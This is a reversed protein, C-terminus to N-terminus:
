GGAHLYDVLEQAAVDPDQEYAIIRYKLNGGEDLLLYELTEPEGDQGSVTLHFTRLPKQQQM